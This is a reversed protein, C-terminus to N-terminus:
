EEAQELAQMVAQRIGTSSYTAGSITDVEASQADIIDAIIGEAMSLYSSDEKEASLVQIDAIRGSTVTLQIRIEGGFGEGVGEFTGDQYISTSQAGDARTNMGSVSAKKEDTGANVDDTEAKGAGADIGDAEAKGAGADIGGAEAKGAGIDIGGTETKGAGADIAGTEPQMQDVQQKLATIEADKTREALRSQYAFLVFLILVVSGWRLLFDKM